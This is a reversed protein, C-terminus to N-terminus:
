DVGVLIQLIGSLMFFKLVSVLRESRNGIMLISLFVVMLCFICYNLLFNTWSRVGKLSLVTFLKFSPLMFILGVSLLQGQFLVELLNFSAIRNFVKLLLIIPLLLLLFNLYLLNLVAEQRMESVISIFTHFFESPGLCNLFFSFFLMFFVM